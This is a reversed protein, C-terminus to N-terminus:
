LFLFLIFESFCLIGNGCLNLQIFLLPPCLIARSGQMVQVCPSPQLASETSEPQVPSGNVRTLVLEAGECGRGDRDGPGGRTLYRFASRSSMWPASLSELSWALRQDQQLRKWRPCASPKPTTVWWAQGLGPLPVPVALGAVGLGLEVTGERWPGCCRRVGRPM